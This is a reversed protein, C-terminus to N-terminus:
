NLLDALKEDLIRGFLDKGIIEGEKSILYNAPLKKINYIQAPYSNTYQLDSVNVWPLKDQQVATEWLIKSKDLSVQYVTFGKSKYKNYIKLLQKNEQRSKADWSAWFSLLVMKGKLSSLKVKKGQLNEEEIEPITATTKREKLLKETFEKTRQEKRIGLVFQKLQKVRPSEPFQLDLSTAVTAFMNFDKKENPNLILNGDDFRQFVAYYSAFSRPNTMVFDFIFDKQKNVIEQLKDSIKKREETNAVPIEKYISILSDIENKSTELRRNLTKVYSSGMSNKVNYSDILNDSKANVIINETSDALLTILNNDSLKLLLFTPHELRPLSFNFKGNEKLAISDLDVAGDLNLQQFYLTKGEAGEIKGSVNLQNKNTCATAFLILGLFLIIRSTNM